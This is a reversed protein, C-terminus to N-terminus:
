AIALEVVNATEGTLISTLKRDWAELAQRKEADYTYKDYVRGTISQDSHNVVKPVYDRIAPIGRMM